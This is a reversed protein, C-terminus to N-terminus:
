RSGVIIESVNDAAPRCEIGIDVFRKIVEINTTTHLSPALTRFSGGGALAMPLLLQDALYKGVPVGAELYRRVEKVAGKAVDEARTGREGFGTFVETVNDSELEVVLINGPGLSERCSEVRADEATWGLTECVVKVEREGISRPLQAVVARCERRRIEGRELLNIQRLGRSPKIAVTFRGGGAPYFGPRELRGTVEPGMKRLIPLFSREIFDFPPAFPNHTGGELMIQSPSSATMLAPLITQLVLTTSGATGVSFRYDGAVTEGPEFTVERSGIDAGRLGAGCVEAAAKLATLHQRLLGGKKRGARINVIRLPKGTTMSLAISTRLVQGGGEGMSGDITIFESMTKKREPESPQSGGGPNMGVRSPCPIRLRSPM